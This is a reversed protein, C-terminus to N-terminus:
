RAGKIYTVGLFGPSTFKYRHFLINNQFFYQLCGVNLIKSWTAFFIKRGPLLGFVKMEKRLSEGEKGIYWGM